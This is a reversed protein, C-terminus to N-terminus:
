CYFITYIRIVSKYAHTIVAPKAMVERTYSPIITFYGVLYYPYTQRVHHYNVFM